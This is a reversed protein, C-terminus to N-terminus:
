QININANDTFSLITLINQGKKLLKVNLIKM